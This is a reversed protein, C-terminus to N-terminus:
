LIFIVQSLLQIKSLANWHIGVFPVNLRPKINTMALRFSSSDDRKYGTGCRGADFSSKKESELSCRVCFQFSLRKLIKACFKVLQSLPTALNVSVYGLNMCQSVLCGDMAPMEQLFSIESM